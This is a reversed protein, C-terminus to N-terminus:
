ERSRCSRAAQQSLLDSNGVNRYEQDDANQDPRFRQPQDVDLRIRRQVLDDKQEAGAVNKEIAARRQAEVDQLLDPDGNDHDGRDADHDGRHDGANGGIVNEANGNITASSSPAVSAEVSGAVSTGIKRCTWMRSRTACVTILSDANLSAMPAITVKPTSATAVPLPSNENADDRNSRSLCDIMPMTAPM